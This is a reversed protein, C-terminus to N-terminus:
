IPGSDVVLLALAVATRHGKSSTLRPNPGLHSMRAVEWVTHPGYTHGKSGTLPPDWIHCGQVVLHGGGSVALHEAWLHVNSLLFFVATCGDKKCMGAASPYCFQVPTIESKLYTRMRMGVTLQQLGQNQDQYSLGVRTMFGNAGIHMSVSYGAFLLRITIDFM